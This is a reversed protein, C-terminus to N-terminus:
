LSTVISSKNMQNSSLDSWREVYLLLDIVTKITIGMFLLFLYAINASIIMFLMWSLFLVTYSDFGTFRSNAGQKGDVVM